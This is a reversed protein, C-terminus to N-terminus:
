FQRWLPHFPLHIEALESIILGLEDIPARATCRTRSTTAPRARCAATTPSAPWRGRCGTPIAGSASRSPACPRRPRISRGPATPAARSCGRAGTKWSHTIPAGHTLVAVWQCPVVHLSHRARRAGILPWSAVHVVAVATGVQIGTAPGPAWIGPLAHLQATLNRSARWSGGRDTSSILLKSHACHAPAPAARGPVHSCTAYLLLVTKTRNDWLATGMSIGDHGPFRSPLSDNLVTTQRSWTIGDVTSRAVIAKLGVDNCASEGRDWHHAAIALVSTDTSLLTPSRFCGRVGPGDATFIATVPQATAAAAAAAAAPPLALAVPRCCCCCCSLLLLQQPPPWSM